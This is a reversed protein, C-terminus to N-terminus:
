TKYCDSVFELIHAYNDVAKNCIRPNKYCDPVYKLKGDNELTVKGYMKPTKYQAAVYRILPWRKVANKCMKKTKLHDPIYRLM